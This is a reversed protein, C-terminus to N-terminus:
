AAKKKRWHVCVCLTNTDERFVSSDTACPYIYERSNRALWHDFCILKLQNLQKFHILSKSVMKSQSIRCDCRVRDGHKM